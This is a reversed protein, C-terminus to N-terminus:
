DFPGSAPAARERADVRISGSGTQLWERKKASALIADCVIQTEPRGRFRAGKQRGDGLDALFDAAAHVFTHEYGTGWGPCGGATWTPSTPIGSRYRRGGAPRSTTRTTTSICSTLPKRTSPFPGSSATSRSATPTRGAAPTGRRRSPASRATRSAPWASSECRRDRGEGDDGPRGPAAAGQHLDRHARLAGRDTRQAVHRHGAHARAPRGDGRQGSGERGPALVHQRGAPCGRQHDLGPPVHRPLPVGARPRRRRDDARALTVPPFRRQNFWVMTKKGSKAAAEVMEKGQEANLALPKETAVM